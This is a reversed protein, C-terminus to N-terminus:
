RQHTKRTQWLRVYERVPIPWFAVDVVFAVVSRGYGPQAGGTVHNDAATRDGGAAGSNPQRQFTPVFTARSTQWQSGPLLRRSRYLAQRGRRHADAIRNVM